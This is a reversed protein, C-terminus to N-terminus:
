PSSSACESGCDVLVGVTRIRSPLTLMEVKPPGIVTYSTTPSSPEFPTEYKTQAIATIEVTGDAVEPVELAFLKKVLNPHSRSLLGGRSFFRRATLAQTNTAM